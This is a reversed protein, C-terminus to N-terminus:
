AVRASPAKWTNCSGPDGSKFGRDLWYVLNKGQGFYRKKKANHDGNAKVLELLAPWGESGRM